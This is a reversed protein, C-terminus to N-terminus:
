PLLPAAARALTVLVTFLTDYADQKDADYGERWFRERSRRIYWNNMADLFASIAQCAGMLDYADMAREVALVTARTKGLVYRDLLRESDTRLRATVGDANAYLTFFYYANWIPNLVLRVVDQIGKGE